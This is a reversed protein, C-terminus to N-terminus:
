SEVNEEPEIIGDFQNAMEDLWLEYANDQMIGKEIDPGFDAMTIVFNAADGPRFNEKIIDRVTKM